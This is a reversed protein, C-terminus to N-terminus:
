RRYRRRMALGFFGVMLISLVMQLVRVSTGIWDLPVYRAPRQFAMTLLSFSFAEGRTLWVSAGNITDSFPIWTYYMAAFGFLIALLWGFAWEPREGYGSTFRYIRTVWRVKERRLFEIRERTEMEGYHFKCALKYDREDEFKRKLQQYAKETFELHQERVIKHGPGNNYEPLTAEGLRTSGMRGWEVGHFNWSELNCRHLTAQSLDGAQFTIGGRSPDVGSSGSLDIPGSLAGITNIKSFRLNCLTDFVTAHCDLNGEIRVISLNADDRFRTGCLNLTGFTCGSLNPVSGPPFEVFGLSCTGGITCGELTLSSEGTPYKTEDLYLNSLTTKLAASRHFTAGSLDIEGSVTSNILSFSGHFEASRATLRAQNLPIRSFDIDDHFKAGDFRLFSGIASGEAEFSGYFECDTFDAGFSINSDGLSVNGHFHTDAFSAGPAYQEEDSDSPQRATGLQCRSTFTVEALCECDTILLPMEVRVNDLTVNSGFTKASLDLSRFHSNTIQVPGHFVANKFSFSPKGRQLGAISVPKEFIAGDFRGPCDRQINVSCEFIAGSFDYGVLDQHDIRGDPLNIRQGKFGDPHHLAAFMRIRSISDLVEYVHDNPM